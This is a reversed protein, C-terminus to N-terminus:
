LCVDYAFNTHPILEYFRNSKDAIKDLLSATVDLDILATSNENEEKQQILARLEDLVDKADQIAQRSLGGLSLFQRDISFKKSMQQQLIKVNAILSIVESVSDDLKSAPLSKADMESFSRDILETRKVRSEESPMLKYKKAKQEFKDLAEPWSNGSKSKFIKEFEKMAESAESFPTQQYQGIDGIRGWRNFLVYLDKAKNHIVQMKYFNNTGYKGSRVDVKTMVLSYYVKKAKVDKWHVEGVERLGSNKDVKPPEEEVKEEKKHAEVYDAADQTFNVETKWVSTPIMSQMRSGLSKEEKAVGLKELTKLM